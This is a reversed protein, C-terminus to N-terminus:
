PRLPGTNENLKVSNNVVVATGEQLKLEGSDVIQQGPKIGKKIVTENGQQEGTVVFVRKAILRESKEKDKEVLYVSDGYLSFSIATTPLLIVNKQTPQIIQISAFMGPIFNFQTIKHAQNTQSDCSVIMKESVNQKKLKVLPSHAPDKMAQIPCNPVTAQVEINHTNIDIHSNIATIKGEFLVDPNQDVSFLIPQNVFLNRHMQEPLFFELFLPDMSQESVITTQGPTIYQGLNVQRISLQGSFPATIHKHRISARTKEVNAQAQLLKARTEDVSSGSTAGRKLLETQRKFNIEQLALESLNSKLTAQEISDDLDILPDGELVAQGSNFHISVVQGSTQASVGVGNVAMFNGVANLTPQWTTQTTMVTSVSVAPPVFNSFYRKIMFGKFLNFAIMGGFVISLAIIMKRTRNKRLLHHPNPDSNKLIM